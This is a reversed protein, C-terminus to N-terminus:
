DQFTSPSLMWSRALVMGSGSRGAMLGKEGGPHLGSGLFLDLLVSRDELDEHDDKGDVYEANEEDLRHELDGGLHSPEKFLDVGEDAKDEKPIEKVAEVASGRLPFEQAPPPNIEDRADGSEIEEAATVHEADDPNEADQSCETRHFNEHPIQESIARM